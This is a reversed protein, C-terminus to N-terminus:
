KWAIQGQFFVGPAMGCSKKSGFFHGMLTRFGDLFMGLVDGVRDWYFFGFDDVLLGWIAGFHGQM